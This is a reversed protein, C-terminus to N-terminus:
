GLMEPIFGNEIFFIELFNELMINLLIYNKSYIRIHLKIQKSSFTKVNKNRFLIDIEVQTFDHNQTKVM